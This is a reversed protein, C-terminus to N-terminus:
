ATCSLMKTYAQHEQQQKNHSPSQLAEWRQPHHSACDSICHAPEAPQTGNM